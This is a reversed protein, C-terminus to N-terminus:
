EDLEDRFADVYRSLMQSKKRHQYAKEEHHAPNRHRPHKPDEAIDDHLNALHHYKQSLNDAHEITRHLQKIRRAHERGKLEINMRDLLSSESLTKKPAEVKHSPVKLSEYEGVDVVYFSSEAGGAGGGKDFRVVKGPVMKGKHPVRVQAGDAHAPKVDVWSKSTQSRWDGLPRGSVFGNSEKVQVKPAEAIQHFKKLAAAAKEKSTFTGVKKIGEKKGDKLSGPVTAHAHFLVNQPGAEGTKSNQYQVREIQGLEKEGEGSGHYVFDWDKNFRKIKM